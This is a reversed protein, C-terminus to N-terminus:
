ANYSAENSQVTDGTSGQTLYIGQIATTTWPTAPSRRTTPAAWTSATRTPARCRSAPIRDGHEREGHHQKLEVPLDRQFHHRHDHVRQHHDLEALLRHIRARRRHRHRDRRPGGPLHDARGLDRLEGPTVNEQYTGSSVLVTDGATAVKAGASITCFPQSQTGPGSDSCNAGGVYWTTTQAAAYSVPGVTAAVGLMIVVAARRLVRLDGRLAVPLSHTEHQWAAVRFRGM